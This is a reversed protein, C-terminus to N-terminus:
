TAIETLTITSVSFMDDYTDRNNIRLLRNTGKWSSCAGPAYSITNGLSYSPTHLYTISTNRMNTDVNDGFYTTAIANASNSNTVGGIRQASGASFIQLFGYSAVYRGNSNINAQLLIKSNARKPTISLVLNSIQAINPSTIDQVISSEKYKIQLISGPAFVQTTVNVVGANLNTILASQATNTAAQSAVHGSLSQVSNDLNEFSVNISSLSDGICENENIFSTHIRAM